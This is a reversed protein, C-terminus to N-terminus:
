VTECWENELLTYAGEEERRMLNGRVEQGLLVLASRNCM